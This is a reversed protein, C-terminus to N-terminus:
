RGLTKGLNRGTRDLKAKSVTERFKEQSMLSDTSVQSFIQKKLKESAIYKEKDFPVLEAPNQENFLINRERNWTGMVRDGLM